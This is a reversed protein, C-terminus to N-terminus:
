TLTSLAFPLVIFYFKINSLLCEENEFYLNSDHGQAKPKAPTCDKPQIPDESQRFPRNLTCRHLQWVFFRNYLTLSHFDQCQRHM